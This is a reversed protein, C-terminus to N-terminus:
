RFENLDLRNNIIALDLDYLLIYKLDVANTLNNKNDIKLFVNVNHM